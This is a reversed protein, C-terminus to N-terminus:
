LNVSGKKYYKRIYLDEMETMKTKKMKTKDSYGALHLIGHIIVKFLEIKSSVKFLGANERIREISIYLDGSIIEEESFDFTIIDTLYNRRLYKKNIELLYKDCTLIININGVKKVHDTLIDNVCTRIEKKGTIRYNVHHLFFRIAL